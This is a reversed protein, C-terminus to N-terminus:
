LLKKGNPDRQPLKKQINEDIGSTGANGTAGTGAGHVPAQRIVLPSSTPQDPKIEGEVVNTPDIGRKGRKKEGVGAKEGAYVGDVERPPAMANMIYRYARAAGIWVWEGWGDDGESESTGDTRERTAKAQKKLQAARNQEDTQPNNWETNAHLEKEAKKQDIRGSAADFAARGEEESIIETTVKKGFPM